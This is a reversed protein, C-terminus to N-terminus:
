KGEEYNDDFDQWESLDVEHKKLKDKMKNEYEESTQGKWTEEKKTAAKLEEPNNSYFDTLYDIYLEEWTKSLLLPHNNPLKFKNVWWLILWDKDDNIKNIAIQHYLNM